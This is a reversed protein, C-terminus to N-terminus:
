RVYTRGRHTRDVAHNVGPGDHGVCGVPGGVISPQIRRLQGRHLVIARGQEDHGSRAGALGPGEHGAQGPDDFGAYRWIPDQEDSEAPPGGVLQDPAESVQDTGLHAAPDVRASKVGDGVPQQALVAGAESQGATEAHEVGTVRGVQHLQGPQRHGRALRFHGAPPQRALVRQEVDVRPDDVGTLGQGLHQRTDEGPNLLVLREDARDEVLVGRVLATPAQQVEVVEEEVPPRGGAVLDEPGDEGVGVVVHKDVFVLVGIEDLAVDNPEQSAVASGERDDAVVTLGDIGEPGGGHAVHESKGAWNGPAATM